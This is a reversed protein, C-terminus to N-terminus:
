MTMSVFFTTIQTNLWWFFLGGLIGVVTFVIISKKVDEHDVPANEIHDDINEANYCTIFEKLDDLKLPNTKLILWLIDFYKLCQNM